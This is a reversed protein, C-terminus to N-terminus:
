CRGKDRSGDTRRGNRRCQICAKKTMTRTQKRPILQCSYNKIIDTIKPRFVDFHFFIGFYKYM